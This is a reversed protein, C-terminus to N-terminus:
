LGPYNIAKVRATEASIRLDGSKAFTMAAVLLRSTLFEDAKKPHFRSVLVHIYTYVYGMPDGHSSQINVMIQRYPQNIQKPLNTPLYWIGNIHIRHYSYIVSLPIQSTKSTM